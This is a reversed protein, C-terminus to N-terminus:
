GLYQGYHYNIGSFRSRSLQDAVRRIPKQLRKTKVLQRGWCRRFASIYGMMDGIKGAGSIPESGPLYNLM